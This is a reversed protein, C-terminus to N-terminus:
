QQQGQQAQSIARGMATAITGAGAGAQAAKGALNSGVGKGAGYLARAGAMKGAPSAALEPLVFGAVAGPIGGARYGADAGILAGTHAAARHMLRQGLGAHLDTEEAREAVPILSSIRQNLDQAGPVTRDLEKDLAGYTQRATKMEGSPNLPNWKTFDKGFERKMRLINAPSQDAAIEGTTPDIAGAFGPQPTTLQARMAALEKPTAASNGGAAVSSRNDIITRAPTLSAPQTSKGAATELQTNLDGLKNRASAAVTAPRIGSTDELAGLGPTKGYGRQIARVGLSSEALPVAAAKLGSGVAATVKPVVAPAALSTGIGLSQGVGGAYDGSAMKDGAEDIRAGVGPIGNLAYNIGHRIAGAYDGSDYSDKTKQWLAGNQQVARQATGAPDHVLDNIGKVAAVPDIEKWFESIGHGISDLPHSTSGAAPTDQWDGPDVDKWDNVEPSAAAGAGM